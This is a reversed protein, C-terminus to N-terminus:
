NTWNPLKNEGRDTLKRLNAGDYDVTYIQISGSINSAFVVHRGDPSWSPTENRVNNETLKTIQNTRLNLVYIDFTNDVRSVFAVRESTPAWAPADHYNGGFSAKRVNSGEADMLYIQPSGAGLRDTTFALERGTPSWSPATETAANFTLRKTKKTELDMAFIDANGEEAMTSCFALKRGDPSFAASYSTGKTAVPTETGEYINRLYLGATFGRYSTFAITRQDPSWAPMYDKIKNFTVRTANAGDYDMIYIEDNGDRNSVFAIKTTFLPKEGHLKLLEDAMKHAVLRLGNKETQYFKGILYTEGKVDYIKSSFSIRGGDEKVEGTVLLRAQVSDWDKFFIKDLDLPRIYGYHEKPLPQFIRTYKVDEMLVQHIEQAAAQAAPSGGRVVFEPLALTIMPMGESIKLVVEQQAFTGSAATLAVLLGLLKQLPKM